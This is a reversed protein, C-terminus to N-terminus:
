LLLKHIKDKRVEKKVELKLKKLDYNSYPLPNDFCYLIDLKDLNEIGKLSALKNNSCNLYNLEDLNEIGKLSTLKNNSCELWKLNVLGEIGELSTIGEDSCYLYTLNGQEKKTYNNDLYEKLKM